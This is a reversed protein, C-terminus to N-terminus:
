SQRQRYVVFDDDIGDGSASLLTMMLEAEVPLRLLTMM